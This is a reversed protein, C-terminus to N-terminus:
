TIRIHRGFIVGEQARGLVMLLWVASDEQRTAILHGRDYSFCTRRTEWRITTIKCENYAMMRIVTEPM